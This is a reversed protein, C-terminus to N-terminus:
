VDSGKNFTWSWSNTYFVDNVLDYLWIVWDAKRYCPVFDRQLVDGTWIKCYYLQQEWHNLNSTSWYDNQAFLYMYASSQNYRGTTQWSAVTLTNLQLSPSYSFWYGTSASGNSEFWARWRCQGNYMAFIWLEGWSIKSLVNFKIEAKSTTTPAYQTNIWPSWPSEIYEVEQYEAPLRSQIVSCTATLGNVTTATITCEWPTVCTVLWTTSVTAISTDDSSWTVSKNPADEPWVTATLQVTQWITALSISSKDLEISEPYLEGIYANKLELNWIYVWM